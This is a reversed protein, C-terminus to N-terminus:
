GRSPGSSRKRSPPTAAGIRAILLPKTSRPPPGARHQFKMDNGCHPCREDSWKVVRGCHPCKYRNRAVLYFALGTLAAMLLGFITQYM